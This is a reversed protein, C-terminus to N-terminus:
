SCVESLARVKEAMARLNDVAWRLGTGEPQRDNLKYIASWRDYENSPEGFHDLVFVAYEVDGRIAVGLCTCDGMDGRTGYERRAPNGYTGSAWWGEREIQDAAKDFVEPNLTFM